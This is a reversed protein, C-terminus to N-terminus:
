VQAATPEFLAAPERAEGAAQTRAQSLLHDATLRMGHIIAPLDRRDNARAIGEGMVATFAEQIRRTQAADVGMEHMLGLACFRTVHRIPNSWRPTLEIKRYVGRTWRDPHEEFYRAVRECVFADQRYQNM